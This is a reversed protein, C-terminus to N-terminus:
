NEMTSEIPISVLVRTGQNLSSKINLNGGVSEAREQMTQLGFRPRDGRQTQGINFGRGKDEIIVRTQGEVKEFRVQAQNVNAHKRINTLAEQIIRILQVEIHPAFHNLTNQDDIILETQIGSQSDFSRLYEELTPVLGKENIVTTRLGLIAERVDAYVERAAEELQVLHAQAKDPKNSSLFRRVAQAKTNVYGLVQGM